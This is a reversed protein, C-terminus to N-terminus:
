LRIKVEDGDKSRLEILYMKPYYKKTNILIKRLKQLDRGSIPCDTGAREEMIKQAILVSIRNVFLRTPLILGFVLKAQKRIIIRM